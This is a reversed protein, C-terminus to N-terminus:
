NALAKKAAIAEKLKPVGMLHPSKVGLKKAEVVLAGKDDAGLEDDNAGTQAPPSEPASGEKALAKPDTINDALLELEAALKDEVEEKTLANWQETTLGSVSFSQNVLDATLVSQGNGYEVSKPEWDLGQLAAPPKEAKETKPKSDVLDTEGDDLELEYAEPISLFRKLHGKDKVESVHKGTKPDPKFHYTIDPDTLDVFTGGERLLTCEVKM